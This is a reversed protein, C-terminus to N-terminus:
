RSSIAHCSEAVRIAIDTAEETITIFLTVATEGHHGLRVVNVSSWKAGTDEIGRIVCQRLTEGSANNAGFSSDFADIIHHRTGIPSSVMMPGFIGGPVATSVEADNHIEYMVRAKGNSEDVTWHSRKWHGPSAM